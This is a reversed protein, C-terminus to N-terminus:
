RDSSRLKSPFFFSNPGCACVQETGPMRDETAMPGSAYIEFTAQSVVLWEVISQM